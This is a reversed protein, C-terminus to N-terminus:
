KKFLRKIFNWVKQWWNIEPALKFGAVDGVLEEVKPKSLGLGVFGCSRCQYEKGKTRTKWRTGNCKPCYFKNENELSM